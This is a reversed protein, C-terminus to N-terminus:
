QSILNFRRRRAPLLGPGFGPGQSIKFALVILPDAPPSGLWANWFESRSPHRQLRCGPRWQLCDCRRHFARWNSLRRDFVISDLTEDAFASPLTFDQMDLHAYGYTNFGWVAETTMPDSTTNVFPSPNYYHDRVNSGEILQVTYTDGASGNFTVSGVNAGYAGYATNILTYVSTVGSVGVPITLSGGEFATNGSADAQFNFPVGGLTQSSTPFLADYASGDTWTRIDTNLTPLAIPTYDAASAALCVTAFGVAIASRCNIFRM